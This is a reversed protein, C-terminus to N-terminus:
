RKAWHYKAISEILRNKASDVLNAPNLYFKEKKLAELQKVLKDFDKESSEPFIPNYINNTDHVQLVLTKMFNKFREKKPVEIKKWIGNLRNFNVTTGFASLWDDWKREDIHTYAKVPQWPVRLMDAFIAGHMAECLVKECSLIKATFEGVSMRPDILELGASDCVRQWPGNDLSQMHPIYGFKGSQKQIQLYSFDALYAADLIPIDKSLKLKDRTITGRVGVFNWKNTVNPLGGYGIGSGIVYIDKGVFAPMKDNLISGIGVIVDTEALKNFDVYDKWLIANLDDGVNGTPM